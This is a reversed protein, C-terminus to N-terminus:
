KWPRCYIPRLKGTKDTEEIPALRVVTMWKAIWSTKPTENDECESARIEAKLRTARIVMAMLIRTYLGERKIRGKPSCQELDRFTELM